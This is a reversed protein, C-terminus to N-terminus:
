EEWGPIVLRAQRHLDAVELFFSRLEEDEPRAKKPLKSTAERAAKAADKLSTKIQRLEPRLDEGM